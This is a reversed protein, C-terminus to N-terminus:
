FNALHLSPVSFFSYLLVIGLQFSFKLSPWSTSILLSYSFMLLYLILVHIIFSLSSIVQTDSDIQHIRGVYHGSCYWLPGSSHITFYLTHIWQIHPQCKSSNELLPSSCQDMLWGMRQGSSSGTHILRSRLSLLVVQPWLVM